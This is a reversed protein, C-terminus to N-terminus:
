LKFHKLFMKAHENTMPVYQYILGGYKEYSERDETKETVGNSFTIHYPHQSFSVKVHGNYGNAQAAYPKLGIFDDINMISKGHLYMVDSEGFESEKNRLRIAENLKKIYDM